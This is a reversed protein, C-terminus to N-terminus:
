DSVVENRKHAVILDCLERVAGEGGPESTVEFGQRLLSHHCDMVVWPHGVIRLAPLDNTDNGLFAVHELPVNLNGALEAVAKGKDKVDQVCAIKLKECRVRVIPNPETSVVVVPVGFAQLAQIGLGDSRWSRVAESGDAFTWVHNDTLVGDFDLVLLRVNALTMM